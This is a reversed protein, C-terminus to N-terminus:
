RSLLKIDHFDDTISVEILEDESVCDLFHPTKFGGRSNYSGGFRGVITGDLELKYIEGTLEGKTVDTRDPNSASFLYQHAGRAICLAWPSGVTDYLALPALTNSFVQIRANGGDAVYVNGNADTAVSHPSRLEGPKAGQGGAATVFRGRRDFKVVRPNREGDVVFINGAGDLAVDLPRDLYPRALRPLSTAATAAETDAV